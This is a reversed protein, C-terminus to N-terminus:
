FPTLFKKLMERWIEVNRIMQYFFIKQTWKLRKSSRPTVKTEGLWGSVRQTKTPKMSVWVFESPGLVPWFIKEVNRALDRCEQDNPVFIIKWGIQAIKLRMTLKLRGLVCQTKRPKLSDWVSESLGFSPWFNKKSMERWIELNRIMQCYFNKKTWWLRKSGKQTVKLRESDVKTM